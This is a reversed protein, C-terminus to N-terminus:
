RKKFNSCQSYATDKIEYLQKISCWRQHPCNKKTFKCLYASAGNGISNDCALVKTKNKIRGVM